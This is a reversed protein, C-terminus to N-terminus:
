GGVPEIEHLDFGRLQYRTSVARETQRACWEMGDHLAEIQARWWATSGGTRYFQACMELHRQFAAVLRSHYHTLLQGEDGGRELARLVAAALIAERVANGSGDGCLPDFGLAATGCALWGPGCLPWTIRPSSSFQAAEGIVEAIQGSVLRSSGSWLDGARGVALLWGTSQGSPILFLWGGPLSEVYCASHDAGDRLRVPLARATRDGFSKEVCAEPLPRSAIVAWSAKAAENVERAPPLRDLLDRENVVVASHPVVQPEAPSGWAVVRKTIPSLGRFLTNCGFVDNFLKQTTGGIMIAPLAPRHLREVAVSIGGGELLRACCRAAVGIGRVSVMMKLHM